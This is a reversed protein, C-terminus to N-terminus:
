SEGRDKVKATDKKVERGDIGGGGNDGGATQGLASVWLM